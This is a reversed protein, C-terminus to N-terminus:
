HCEHEVCGACDTVNKLYPKCCAACVNCTKDDSCIQPTPTPPPPPAPCIGCKGSDCIRCAKGDEHLYPCIHTPDPNTANCGAQTDICIGQCDCRNVCDTNTNCTGGYYIYGSLTNAFCTGAHASALCCILLWLSLAIHTSRM